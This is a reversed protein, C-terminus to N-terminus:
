VLQTDKLNAGQSNISEINADKFNTRELNAGQLDKVRKNHSQSVLIHQLPM